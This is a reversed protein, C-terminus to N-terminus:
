YKTVTEDIASDKNFGELTNKFTEALRWEHM